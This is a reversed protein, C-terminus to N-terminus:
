AAAGRGFLRRAALGLLSPGREPEPPAPDLEAACARLRATAHETMAEAGALAEGEGQPIGLRDLLWPSLGTPLADAAFRPAPRDAPLTPLGEYQALLEGVRARQREDLSELVAEYDAAAMAPLRAVMRRLSRDPVAM